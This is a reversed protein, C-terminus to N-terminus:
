LTALMSDICNEWSYGLMSKRAQLRNVKLRGQYAEEMYDIIQDVSSEGWESRGIDKNPKQDCLPICNDTHIIDLHGTNKSILCPLGFALSEMAVLNTGAECRNPFVALDAERLVEPMLRNSVIDLHIVQNPNVGNNATWENISTGMDQNPRIPECIGSRNIGERAMNEWYSRWTTVLVVDKHRASFVSFAKLLIDQGKRYELKGGSFVVFKDKLFKKNMPRFLDLDIGQIITKTDIGSKKLVSAGWSSGAILFEFKNFHNITEKPLPNVENFIIGVHRFQNHSPSIPTNGLAALYVDDKGLRFSGDLCIKESLIKKAFPEPPYLFSPKNNSRIDFAPNLNGNILLNLGYIGWGTTDSIGWNFIIKRRDSM